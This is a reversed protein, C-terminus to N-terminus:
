PWYKALLFSSCALLQEAQGCGFAVDDLWTKREGEKEEKGEKQNKKKM